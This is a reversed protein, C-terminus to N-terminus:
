AFIRCGYVEVRMYPYGTFTVPRFRVFRATVPQPLATTQVAATATGALPYPQGVANTYAQFTNGDTSYEMNFVSTYASASKSQQAVAHISSPKGLDIQLWSSNDAGIWGSADLLRGQSALYTGHTNHASMFADPIKRVNAAVGFATKGCDLECNKGGFPLICHCDHDGDTKPVCTGDNKCPAPACPTNAEIELRFTLDSFKGHVDIARVTFRYVSDAEPLVGSVEGAPHLQVGPPLSGAVLQYTINGGEPDQAMMQYKFNTGSRFVGLNDSSDHEPWMPPLSKVIEIIELLDVDEFFVSGNKGPTLRVNGGTGSQLSINGHPQARVRISPFQIDLVGEHQCIVITPLITLLVVLFGM